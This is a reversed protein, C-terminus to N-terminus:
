KTASLIAAAREVDADNCVIFPAHGGLEMTTRKMHRGALAALHQGVAVSGTFSVKRIAPHPVLYESIHAPVGFVLNLVGPPLGADEFAGVLAAASNPTE